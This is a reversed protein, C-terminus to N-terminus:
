ACCHNYICTCILLVAIRFTCSVHCMVTPTQISFGKIKVLNIVVDM